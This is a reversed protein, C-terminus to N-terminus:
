SQLSGLSCPFTIQTCRFAEMGTISAHFSIQQQVKPRPHSHRITPGPNSNSNGRSTRATHWPKRRAKHLCTLGSALTTCNTVHTATALAAEMSVVWYERMISSGGGLQTFDEELLYRHKPLLDRPDTYMLVCVKSFSALHQAETM